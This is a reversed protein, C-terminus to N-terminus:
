RGINVPFKVKKLSNNMMWSIAIVFLFYFYFTIPLPMSNFFPNYKILFVGHLLLIEYSYRGLFVLTRSYFHIGIFFIFICLSSLCLLLDMFFEHFVDPLKDIVMISWLYKIYIFLIMLLIFAWSRWGVLKNLHLKYKGWNAALWWGLPFALYQTWDFKLLYYDLLFFIIGFFFPIYDIYKNDSFLKTFVVVLYWFLLFTIFWRVFDFHHMIKYVNIGIVSLLVHSIKYSRDLLLYDLIIILITSAWYPIFVRNIRKIFFTKLNFSDKTISIYIGYGSCILFLTLNDSIIAYFIDLKKEFVFSWLHGVIILFVAM